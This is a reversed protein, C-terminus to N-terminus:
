CLSWEVEKIENIELAANKVLDIMEKLNPIENNYTKDEYVNNNKDRLHGKLKAKKIDERIDKNFMKEGGISVKRLDDYIILLIKLYM